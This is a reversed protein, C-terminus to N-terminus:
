KLSIPTGIRTGQEAPLVELGLQEAGVLAKVQDTIVHAIPRSPDSLDDATLPDKCHIIFLRMGALAGRLQERDLIKNETASTPSEVPSVPSPLLSLNRDRSRSRWLAQSFFNKRHRKRFGGNEESAATTNSFQKLFPQRLWVIETALAQMERLVHPPSLHGYLLHDPRSQEYSCELFITSLLQNPSSVVLTAALAWVSRTSPRLAITDPEVDGFFLFQRHTANHRIFFASSNYTNNTGLTTGHSVPVALVSLQPNLPAYVAAHDIANTPLLYPTVPDYLYMSHHTGPDLSDNALSPWIRGNFMQAIDDLVGKLGMIRRRSLPVPSRPISLPIPAPLAGAALVLSLIHDLHGHSILFTRRPSLLSLVLTFLSNSVCQVYSYIRAALLTKNKDGDKPTLDHFLNPNHEVLRALAAIGAGAEISICGDEWKAESAKLM